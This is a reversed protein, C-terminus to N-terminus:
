QDAWLAACYECLVAAGDDPHHVLVAVHIVQGCSECTPGDSTSTSGQSSM